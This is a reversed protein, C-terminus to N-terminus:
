AIDEPLDCLSVKILCIRTNLVQQSKMQNYTDDTKYVYFSFLFLSGFLILLIGLLTWLFNPKRMKNFM